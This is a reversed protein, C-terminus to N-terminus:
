SGTDAAERFRRLVEAAPKGREELSRVWDEAVPAYLRQMQAQQESTLRVLTTGQAELRQLAEENDRDIKECASRTVKEGAQLMAQQVEPSLQDWVRRSIGYFTVSSGFAGGVTAYESLKQLDYSFISAAPFSTGDVTGRAFSETLEPAGMRIPVIGLSRLGADMTGGSSRIKLGKLSDLDSMPKSTFLEYQPLGVVYLLKIGAPALEERDIPGGDKALTEYALAAACASPVLGPLEGITSLALKDGLYGPFFEGMDAVGAEVLTLMDKAKGLSQSPYRKITVAGGTAEEVEAIWPKIAYRAIYHDAPLRDAHKLEIPDQAAAAATGATAPGLALILGLALGIAGSKPNPRISM